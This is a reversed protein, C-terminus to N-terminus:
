AKEEDQMFEFQDEHIIGLKPHSYHSLMRMDAHGTRGMADIPSVDKEQLLTTYTHRADHLRMDVGCNHFHAIIARSVSEPRFRPLIFGEQGKMPLLLNYLKQGLGVMRPKGTKTETLLLGRREWDINEIKAAMAESRRLGCGFFIFIFLTLKGGLLPRKLRDNKEAKKLIEVIKEETPIVHQIREKQPIKMGKVV